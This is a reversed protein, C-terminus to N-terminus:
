ACFLEMGLHSIMEILNAIFHLWRQPCFTYTLEGGQLPEMAYHGPHIDWFLGEEQPVEIQRIHAFFLFSQPCYENRSYYFWGTTM